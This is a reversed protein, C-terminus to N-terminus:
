VHRLALWGGMRGTLGDRRYSFFEDKNCSTCEESVAINRDDLGARNLLILNAIKLDLHWKDTSAQSLVREEEPFLKYFQKAVDEGVNYCHRGISPSVAALLQKPDTGFEKVMAEVTEIVIGEVTGRWGAHAVGIAHNVPDVFFICVCDAFSLALPLNPINTILADTDPIASSHNLAGVGADFETVRRVINSHVQNPVVIRKADVGLATAFARRNALVNEPDDDVNLSLNFSDYPSASVGGVRTSFGHSVIGSAHLHWAQYYKVGGAEIRYWNPIRMDIPLSRLGQM